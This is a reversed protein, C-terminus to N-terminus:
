LMYFSFTSGEGYASKVKVYGGQRCAIERVLYLGIGAGEKESVDRSRYFREFIQAQEEERIGMGQDQVHVAAFMEYETVFVKVSSERISYKVANDLLNFVAEDTWKRDFCARENGAELVIEIGKELAKERVAEVSAELMPRIMQKKPHLLLLESELRSAKMLSKILFDLKESQRKINDVIPTLEPDKEKEQLLEAYLLINAIPTKTQHSIDSILTKTRQQEKEVRLRAQESMALYRKWKSELRSLRSEDYDEERFTGNIAQELMDELRTLTSRRM